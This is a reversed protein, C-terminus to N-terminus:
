KKAAKPAAVKKEKKVETNKVPKNNKNKPNETDLVLQVHSTRKNIPFARGRARPMSRKLVVGGDVRIEKIFLADSTINLNKANAVASKILSKVADGARKPLFDLTSIATAVNKGRVLNAVLRVKRPSQRYNSLTATVQAM